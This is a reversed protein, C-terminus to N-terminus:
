GLVFHGIELALDGLEPLLQSRGRGIAVGRNLLLRGCGEFLEAKLGLQTGREVALLRTALDQAADGGSGAVRLVRQLLDRLGRRMEEVRRAHGDAESLAVSPDLVNTDSAAREGAARM